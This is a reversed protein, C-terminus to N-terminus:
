AGAGEVDSPAFSSRGSDGTIGALTDSLQDLLQLATPDSPHTPEVRMRLLEMAVGYHQALRYAVGGYEM